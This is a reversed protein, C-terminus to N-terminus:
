HRGRDRLRGVQSGGSPRGREMRTSTEKRCTCRDPLVYATNYKKYRMANWNSTYVSRGTVRSMKGLIEHPTPFYTEGEAHVGGEEGLDSHKENIHRKPPYCIHGSTYMWTDVLTQSHGGSLMSM